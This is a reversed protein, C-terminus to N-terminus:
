RVETYQTTVVNVDIPYPSIVPARGISYRYWIRTMINPIQKKPYMVPM